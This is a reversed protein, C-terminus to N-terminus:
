MSYILGNCPFILIVYIIEFFFIMYYTCKELFNLKNQFFLDKGIPYIHTKWGTNEMGLMARNEVM